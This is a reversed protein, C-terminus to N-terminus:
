PLALPLNTVPRPVLIYNAQLLPVLIYNAQPLPTPMYNALLPLVMM